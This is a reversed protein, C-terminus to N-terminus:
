GNAYVGWKLGTAKLAAVWEKALALNATGGLQWANCTGSTPEVDFWLRQIIIRNAALFNVLENIQTQISKCAVGLNQILIPKNNM